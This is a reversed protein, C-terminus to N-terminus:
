HPTTTVGGSFQGLSALWQDVLAASMKPFYKWSSKIESKQAQSMRGNVHNKLKRRQTSYCTAIVPPLDKLWLNIEKDYPDGFWWPRILQDSHRFGSSLFGSPNELAIHPINSNYLRRVFEVADDRKQIRGEEKEYRWQQAKALYTCPPFGVMLDWGDNIIDLVSGQYHLGPSQTPKLDSSVAYCGRKKFEDRVIGSCECAIM